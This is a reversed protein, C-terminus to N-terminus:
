PQAVAIFVLALVCVAAVILAEVYIPWAERWSIDRYGRDESPDLMIM